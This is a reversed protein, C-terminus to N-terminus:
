RDPGVNTATQKRPRRWGLIKLLDGVKVDSITEHRLNISPNIQYVNRRGVKQREIYGGKELDAIIRYVTWETIKIASAIERTTSQRHKAIYTLVLGYNSIFTWGTM